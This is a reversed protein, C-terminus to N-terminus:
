IDRAAHDPPPDVPVVIEFISGEGLQSRLDVRGGHARAIAQVIALGLGAGGSRRHGGSGRSFREFIREQDAPAVGSGEDRVWFHAEGDVVQGGIGVVDDENSNQSANQALQILAQTIRQRDVVIRGRPKEDLVWKRPAIVEAKSHVDEILAGADVVALNLFEPNESRALLLMDEVLRSMRDLEDTVLELTKDREEPVANLLELHGRVITIPTRLEHSADDVFRKRSEFAGELRDLMENFTQALDSIEDQGRVEIRRSFDSVSISRATASVEQVPELIGNALRWALLSGILLVVAGISAAGIIGTETEERELDRFMAVVFLGDPGTRSELPVALYDVAGAPTDVTARDSGELSSWRAVLERDQDLRYPVVHRDRLFPRGDVFTLLAENRSPVNRELYTRFVQRVRGAFPEGTQPNNGGALARLERTEQVLERDIREDLRNLLFQRVALVSVLSTLALLAIFSALLRVRFSSLLGTEHQTPTTAVAEPATTMTTMM